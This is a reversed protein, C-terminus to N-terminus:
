NCPSIGECECAARLVPKVVRLDNHVTRESVGERRAIARPALGGALMEVERKHRPQDVKRMAWRVLDESQFAGIPQVCAFLDMNARRHISVSGRQCTERRYQECMEGKIRRYAFTRFDAGRGDVFREAAQVLGVYGSTLYEGIEGHHARTFKRAAAFVLHLHADILATPTM